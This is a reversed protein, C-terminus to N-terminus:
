AGDREELWAQVVELRDRIDWGEERAAVYSQAAARAIALARARDIEGDWLAQALNFRITGVREPRVQRDISIELARELRAVAAAPEGLEIEVRALGLLCPVLQPHDAGLARETRVVVTQFSKRAEEFNGSFMYNAAVNNLFGLTHIHDPGHIAENRAAAEALLAAAEVHRERLAHFMGVNGLVNVYRPDDEAFTRKAAALASAYVLEAEDDRGAERLTAGYTTRAAIAHPHEPSFAADFIEVARQQAELALDVSGRRSLATALSNLSHAVAPHRPGLKSEALALSQRLLEIEEATSGLRGLVNGLAQAGQMRAYPNPPDQQDALEISREYHVRAQEHDGRQYAVKGQANAVRTRLPVTDNRELAAAAHDIWRSAEDHRGQDALLMALDMACHAILEPHDSAVAAAFATHFGREAEDEHGLARHAEAIGYDAQGELARLGLARAQERAQQHLEISPLYRGMKHKVEGRSLLSEIALVQQIDVDAYRAEDGPGTGCAAPSGLSAATQAASVVTPEDAQGLADVFTELAQIQRHLCITAAARHIKEAEGLGCHEGQAQRWREVFSDVDREVSQWANQAYPVGTALFAQHGSQTTSENWIETLRSYASDCWVQGTPEPESRSAVFTSAGAIVLVLMGVVGARQKRRQVARLADVLGRLSGHASRQRLGDHVIRRVRRPVHPYRPPELEKGPLGGFLAQYLAMAWSRRDDDETPPAGLRPSSRVFDIVRVQRDDGVVLSDLGFRGHILGAEHATALADGAAVFVDLVRTWRPEAQEIWPLVTRGDVFDMAAFQRGEYAGVDHVRVVNPHVLRALVRAQDRRWAQAQESAVPFVKLRVKRDLEPDYAILTREGNRGVVEDLVLYRGFRSAPDTM